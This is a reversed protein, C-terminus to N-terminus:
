LINGYLNNAAGELFCNEHYISTCTDCKYGCQLQGFLYHRCSSCKPPSKPDESIELLHHKIFPSFQHGQHDDIPRPSADDILKQIKEKLENLTKEDKIKVCFSEHNVPIFDRLNCVTMISFEPYKEVNINMSSTIPISDRYFYTNKTEDCHGGFLSGLFTKNGENEIKFTFLRQQFFMLYCKQNYSNEIVKKFTMQGELILRGYKTDLTKLADSDMNRIKDTFKRLSARYETDRIYRNVFNSVEHMCDVAKDCSRLFRQLHKNTGDSKIEKALEKGLTTL